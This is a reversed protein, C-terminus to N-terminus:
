RVESPLFWKPIQKAEWAKHYWSRFESAWLYTLGKDEPGRCIRGSAQLVERTACWLYYEPDYNLLWRNAPDMLSSWPCQLMVQWRALDGKLDIGERLGSGILVKGDEPPSNLFEKFVTRKNSQNHFMIRPDKLHKRLMNATSYTCHIFGKSQHKELCSELFEAAAPLSDELNDFSMSRGHCLVVPRNEAPIPSDVDITIVRRDGLGMAQVDIHNITASMLVIKKVKAPWYIPAEESCDLPSLSICAMEDGRYREETFEVTTSPKMTNLINRMTNHIQRQPEVNDLWQWLSKLNDISEPYGFQHQWLKKAAQSRQANLLQHAEDVILVKRQLKHAIYTMYNCVLRSKVKRCEARNKSYQSNKPGHQYVNKRYWAETVTDDGPKTVPTYVTGGRPGANYDVKLYYDKQAWITKLYDFDTIYQQVLLNNPALIAGCDQWSQITTAIASKGTGVPARIVFVDGAKWKKEIELLTQKQAERIEPYPFHDLISM